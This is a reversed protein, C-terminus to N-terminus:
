ATTHRLGVPIRTWTARGRKDDIFPFDVHSDMLFVQLSVVNKALVNDCAIGDHISPLPRLM